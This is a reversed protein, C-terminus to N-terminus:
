SIRELGGMYQRLAEPVAISGDPQQYNEMIAILCRGLAVGSGNLTHVFQTSKEGRPRHRAKMRRAQFDGCNSCSSIERYTGQGPLWVELDFTKRAAFGMDGACLLMRRYPLGLRELITEACRTMREHEAESQDPTTISVLEVKEFQHQRLMGRTDKGAAGAEARFCPTWATYRFPLKETEIITDNVINTLSMEATPILWLGHTTQYMDEASKPLNGTGYAIEELVMLPPSIEEYGFERTHIDLMFNGLAREMQALGGRLMTFRAGSLKAANTFDMLGLAEGLEYHHKTLDRRPPEGVRKKEENKTEDKGDPVEPAPINPFVSLHEDRKTVHVEAEAELTAIKEKLAMVEAMSSDASGGQRKIEGVKKSLENRQAQLAQLEAQVKRWEVDYRLVDADHKLVAEGTIFRGREEWRAREEDSVTFAVGRRKLGQEFAELNERIFKIDHM